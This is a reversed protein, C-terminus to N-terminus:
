VITAALSISITGIMRGSAAVTRTGPELLTV